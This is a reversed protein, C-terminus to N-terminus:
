IGREVASKAEALGVGTIDRYAKIAGIKDGTAMLDRVGDLDDGPAEIQLHALVLDLKRELRVLRANMAADNSGSFLGM